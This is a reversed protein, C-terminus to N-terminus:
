FIIVGEEVALTIHPINEKKKFNTTYIKRYKRAETLKRELERNTSSPEHHFLVLHKIDAEIALEVGINPSSHGWDAKSIEAEKFSYQADFILM